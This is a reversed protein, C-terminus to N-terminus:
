GKKKDYHSIKNIKSYNYVRTSQFRPIYVKYTVYIVDITYINCICRDSDLATTIEVRRVDVERTWVLAGFTCTTNSVITGHMPKEVFNQHM